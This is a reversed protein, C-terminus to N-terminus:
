SGRQTPAAEPKKLANATFSRGTTVPDWTWAKGKRGEYDTWLEFWYSRFKHAGLPEYHAKLARHIEADTGAMGLVGKGHRVSETDLPLHAYRGCLQMINAAAYPGIGPLTLLFAYAEADDVAPDELWRADIEGSCCMKAIEVIRTDRYGVKCRSRLTAPRIRALRQPSPFAGGMLECLRLNMGITNPWAVNCSTITKVIDEFLTPSRSLRGRGSRRWRPDLRHFAQVADDDLSLMRTIQRRLDAQEHRALTRDVRCVVPDGPDMGPQSLEAIAPGETLAFRRSLTLADPNWRNPALLFYGYSCFDRAFRYDTPTRIRLTTPM